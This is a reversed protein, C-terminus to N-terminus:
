RWPSKYWTTLGSRSRTRKAGCLKSVSGGRDFISKIAAYGGVTPDYISSETLGHLDNTHLIQLLKAHASFQLLVFALVAYLVGRGTKM